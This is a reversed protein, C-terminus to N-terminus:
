HGADRGTARSLIDKIEPIAQIHDIYDLLNQIHNKAERAYSSRILGDIVLMVDDDDRSSVPTPYIAVHGDRKKILTWNELETEHLWTRIRVLENNM